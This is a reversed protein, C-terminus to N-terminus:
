KADNIAPYDLGIASFPIKGTILAAAFSIVEEILNDKLVVTDSVLAPLSPLTVANITRSGTFTGPSGNAPQYYLQRNRVTFMPTFNSTPALAYDPYQPVYSAMEEVSDTFVISDAYEEKITEPLTGVGLTFSITHDKRLANLNNPDKAVNQAIISFVRPLILEILVENDLLRPDLPSQAVGIAVQKIREILESLIM